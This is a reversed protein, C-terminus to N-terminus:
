GLEWRWLLRPNAYGISAYFDALEAVFNSMICYESEEGMTATNLETEVYPLPKAKGPVSLVLYVVTPEDNIDVVKKRKAGDIDNFYINSEGGTLYEKGFLAKIDPEVATPYYLGTIQAGYPDGNPAKASEALTKVTPWDTSNMGLGDAALVVNQFLNAAATSSNRLDVKHDKAFFYSGDWCKTTKGAQLARKVMRDKFKAKNAAFRQAESRAMAQYTGNMALLKPIRMSDEFPEKSITFSDQAVDRMQREGTWPRFGGTTLDVFFQDVLVPSAPIEEVFDASWPEPSEDLMRALEFHLATFANIVNPNVLGKVIGM